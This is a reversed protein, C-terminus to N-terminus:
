LMKLVLGALRAAAAIRAHPEHRGGNKRGSCSGPFPKGWVQDPTSAPKRFFIM